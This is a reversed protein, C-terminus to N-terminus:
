EQEKKKRNRKGANYALLLAIVIAAGILVFQILEFGSEKNEDVHHEFERGERGGHNEPNPIGAAGSQQSSAPQPPQSDNDALAPTAFALLALAPAIFIFKSKM